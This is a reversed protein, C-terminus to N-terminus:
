DIEILTDIIVLRAGTLISTDDVDDCPRSSVSDRTRVCEMMYSRLVDELHSCQFRVPGRSTFPALVM